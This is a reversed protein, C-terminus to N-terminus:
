DSKGLAYLVGGILSVGLRFLHYLVSAALSLEQPVGLFAFLSIYLADQVGIGNLSPIFFTALTIVPFAFLAFFPDLKIGLSLFITYQTLVSFLQVVVALIFVHFILTWRGKYVMLSEYIKKVIKIKKSLKQLIYFGIYMSMVFWVLLLIVWFHLIGTFSLVSFLVLILVGTFRETFTSTFAFTNDNIRKGLKFVKYVDGGISTPMFNNFFSGIFYLSTLYGLSVKNANEHVILQKWRLSSIVYNLVIFAVIPVLFLLDMLKLNTILTQKDVKYLIYFILGASVIIKLVLKKLSKGKKEMEQNEKM